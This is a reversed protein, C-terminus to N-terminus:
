PAVHKCVLVQCMHLYLLMKLSLLRPSIAHLLAMDGISQSLNTVNNYANVDCLPHGLGHTISM